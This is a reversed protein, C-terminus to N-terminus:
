RRAGMEAEIEVYLDRPGRARIFRINLDRNGGTVWRISHTDKLDDRNRMIVLFMGKAETRQAAQREGGSLPRIHAWVDAYKAWSTAAGGVDDKATTSSYLEIQETLEGVHVPRARM